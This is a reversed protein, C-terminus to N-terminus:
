YLIHGIRGRFVGNTLKKSEGKENYLMCSFHATFIQYSINDGSTNDVLEIVEFTSGEQSGRETSWSVGEKDSYTFAVNGNYSDETAYEYTDLSVISTQYEKTYYEDESTLTKFFHLYSGVGINSSSSFTYDTFFTSIGDEDFDGMIGGIGNNYTGDGETMSLELGDLEGTLYYQFTQTEEQVEIDTSDDDKQCNTFTFVITLLTFFYIIRKM